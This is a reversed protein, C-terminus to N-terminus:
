CGRKSMIILGLKYSSVVVVDVINNNCIFNSIYSSPYGINVYSYRVTHIQAFGVYNVEYSCIYPMLPSPDLATSKRVVRADLALSIERIASMGSGTRLM